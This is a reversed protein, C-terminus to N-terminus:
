SSLFLSLLIQLLVWFLNHTKIHTRIFEATLEGYSKKRRSEEDVEIIQKRDKEDAYYKYHIDIDENSGSGCLDIHCNYGMEPPFTHSWEQLSDHLLYTYLERDSLHNTSDLYVRM